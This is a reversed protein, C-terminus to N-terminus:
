GSPYPEADQPAEVEVPENVAALEMEFSITAGTQAVAGQLEEVGELGLDLEIGLRRLLDDEKGTVVEITASEVARELQEQSAGEIVPTSTSGLLSVLDNLGSSADFDSTMLNTEMGDIEEGAQLEPTEFWDGIELETLGEETTPVAALSSTQEEGLEYAVGEIEVFVGDATSIVDITESEEGAIQTYRMDAVPLSDGEGFSFPGDLEFGVTNGAVDGQGEAVVRLSLDGSRIEGLKEAAADLRKEAETDGCGGLATTLACAVLAAELWRRSM